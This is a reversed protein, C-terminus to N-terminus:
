FIQANVMLYHTSFVFQYKWIFLLVWDPLVADHRRWDWCRRKYTEFSVGLSTKTSRRWSMETIRRWSTMLSRRSLTELSRLLLPDNTSRWLTEFQDWILCGVVDRHYRVLFDWHYREVVDNFFTTVVDWSYSVVVYWQYTELVDWVLILHFVWRRTPPVDSLPRLPVGGRHRM